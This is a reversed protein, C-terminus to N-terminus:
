VRNGDPAITQESTAYLASAGDGDNRNYFTALYYSATTGRTASFIAAPGGVANGVEMVTAPAFSSARLAAGGQSGFVIFQAADGQGITTAMLAPSSGSESVAEFLGGRDNQSSGHVGIGNISNGCVGPGGQEGDSYGGVGASGTHSIGHVGEGGARSAEGWVGPGGQASINYGAAGAAQGHSIGHVGEWANSEGWVGPGGIVGSQNYGAVGAAQGNSIGHVGEFQSSEGYVGIGGAATNTGKVGPKAKTTRRGIPSNGDPVGRPNSSTKAGDGLKQAARRILATACIGPHRMGWEYSAIGARPFVLGDERDPM